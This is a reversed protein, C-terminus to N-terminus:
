AEFPEALEGWEGARDTDAVFPFQAGHEGVEWEGVADGDNSWRRQLYFRQRTEIHREGEELSKFVIM